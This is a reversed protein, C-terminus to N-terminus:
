WTRPDTPAPEPRIEGGQRPTHAASVPRLDRTGSRDAHAAALSRVIDTATVIGAVGTDDLVVVADTAAAIMLQAADSRRDTAQLAPVPRCVEGVLTTSPAAGRTMAQVLDTERLLGVCHRDAMVPLHRVCNVTMLRLAVGIPADPVIAVLRSTMLVRLLPDDEDATEPAAALRPPTASM